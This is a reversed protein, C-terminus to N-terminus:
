WDYAFSVAVVGQLTTRAIPTEGASGLLRNVAADVNVLWHSSVFRTASFGFGLANEGAHAVYVPYGSALAQGPTVGFLSQQYRRDAFTISPGAFMVLKKSSGPLPLYGEVDGVLGNSAGLIRRVDTRVVLPFRKSLVFDGFLRVVPARDIDGLGHLHVSDDSVRRGLDYGVSFGVRFHDGRLVNVGIGEGLSAFALDSYRINIVPGAQSRYRGAGDYLPATQVAAGLVVRWQPLHPEFLKALIIGGSYQWEQM